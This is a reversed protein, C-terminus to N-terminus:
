LNGVTHRQKGCDDKRGKVHKYIIRVIYLQECAPEVLEDNQRNDKRAKDAQKVIQQM